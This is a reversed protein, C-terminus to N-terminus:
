GSAPLEREDDCVLNNAFVEFDQATQLEREGDIHDIRNYAIHEVPSFEHNGGFRQGYDAGIRFVVLKEFGSNRTLGIQDHATIPVQQIQKSKALGRYHGRAIKQFSKLDSAAM